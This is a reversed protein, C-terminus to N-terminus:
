TVLVLLIKGGPAIHRKNSQQASSWKDSLHSAHSYEKLTAREQGSAVLRAASKALASHAQSGGGAASQQCWYAVNLKLLGAAYWPPEPEAGFIRRTLKPCAALEGRVAPEPQHTQFSQEHTLRDLLKTCCWKCPTGHGTGRM